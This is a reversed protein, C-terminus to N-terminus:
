HRALSRLVEDIAGRRVRWKRGVHEYKPGEPDWTVTYEQDSNYGSEVEALSPTKTNETLEPLYLGTEGVELQHSKAPTSDISYRRQKTPSSPLKPSLSRSVVRRCHRTLPIEDKNEEKLSYTASFSDSDDEEDDSDERAEDSTNNDGVHMLKYRRASDLWECAWQQRILHLSSAVGGEFYESFTMRAKHIDNDGDMGEVQTVTVQTM